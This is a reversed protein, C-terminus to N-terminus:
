KGMGFGFAISVWHLKEACAFAVLICGAPAILAGPVLSVLRQEPYVDGNQRRIVRSTIVDSLWGGAFCGVVFGAIAAIEM